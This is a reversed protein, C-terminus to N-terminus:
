KEEKLIYGSGRLTYILPKEGHVSIKKRLYRIYTEVVNSLGSYNYDWAHELLESQSIVRGQNRMLYELVIYEKTTLPIDRGNRIAQRSAQDLKLGGIALPTLGARQGRRLLARIRALLESLNFPKVLYDDAGLDLGRAKDDPSDLATLILIPIDRNLARIRKCVELGRVKPIFLDLIILDYQQMEWKDLAEQGDYALDVLYGEESLGRKLISAIGPEDEVVLFQMLENYSISSPIVHSFIRM